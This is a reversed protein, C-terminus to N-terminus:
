IQGLSSTLSPVSSYYLKLQGEWYKGNGHSQESEGVSDGSALSPSM